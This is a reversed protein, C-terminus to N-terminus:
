IPRSDLPRPPRREIRKKRETELIVRQFHTIIVKKHERRRGWVGEKIYTHTHTNSSSLPSFIPHFTLLFFFLCWLSLYLCILYFYVRIFGWFFNEFTISSFNNNVVFDTETHYKLVTTRLTPLMAAWWLSICVNQRGM